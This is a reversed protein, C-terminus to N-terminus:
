VAVYPLRRQDAFAILTDMKLIKSFVFVAPRIREVVAGGKPFDYSKFKEDVYADVIEGKSFLKGYKRHIFDRTFRIQM